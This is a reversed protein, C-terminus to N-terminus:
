AARRYSAWLERETLCGGQAACGQCTRLHTRWREYRTARGDEDRLRDRLDDATQGYVPERPDTSERM